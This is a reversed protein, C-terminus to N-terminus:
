SEIDQNSVNEYNLYTGKRYMEIILKEINEIDIRLVKMVDEIEDINFKKQDLNMINIGRAIQNINNGIQSIQFSLNNLGDYNVTIYGGYKTSVRILESVSINMKKAKNKLYNKEKEDIRIEFRKEKM